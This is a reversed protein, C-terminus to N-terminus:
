LQLRYELANKREGKSKKEEGNLQGILEHIANRNLTSTFACDAHQYM